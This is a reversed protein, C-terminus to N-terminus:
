TQYPNASASRNRSSWRRRLESICGVVVLAAAAFSFLNLAVVENLFFRLGGGFILLLEALVYLQTGFSWAGFLALVGVIAVPISSGTKVYWLRLLLVPAVFLFFAVTFAFGAAEFPERVHTVRSAAIGDFTDIRAYVAVIQAVRYANRTLLLVHAAGILLMAVLARRMPSTTIAEEGRLKAPGDGLAVHQLGNPLERDSHVHAAIEATTARRGDICVRGYDDLTVNPQTPTESAPTKM